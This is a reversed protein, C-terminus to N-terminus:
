SAYQKVKELLTDVAFPKALFDEAGAQLASQAVDRSASIMIVPIDRTEQNTKLDRCVDRGDVGSMAVDLLIVDPKQACIKNVQRGDTTTQVIYDADEFMIQLADLIAPDDDAILIKRMKTPRTYDKKM